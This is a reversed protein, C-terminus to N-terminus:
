ANLPIRYKLTKESVLFPILEVDDLLKYISVPLPSFYLVEYFRKNPRSKYLFELQFYLGNLFNSEVQDHSWTFRGGIQRVV